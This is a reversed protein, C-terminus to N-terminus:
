GNGHKCKKRCTPCHITIITDHQVKTKLTQMLDDIANFAKLQELTISLKFLNIKVDLEENLEDQLQLIEPFMVDDNFPCKM